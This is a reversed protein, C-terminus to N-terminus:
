KFFLSRKKMPRKQDDRSRRDRNQFDDEEDRRPIRDDFDDNMDRRPRRNNYEDDDQVSRVRERTRDGTGVKKRDQIDEQVRSVTSSLTDYTAAAGKFIKDRIRHKRDLIMLKDIVKGVVVTVKRTVNLEANIDAAEGLLAVVRMGMTRVLDGRPNKGIAFIAFMAAGGTSGMWTPILPMNGGCFSGILIVCLLAKIMEFEPDIDSRPAYKWPNEEEGDEVPPFPVRQRIRCLARVHKGTRYRRRVIRTRKWLYIFALGLSRSMEGCDNRLFSMLMFLLGTMTAFFQGQSLLSQGVFGGLSAGVISSALALQIRGYRAMADSRANVYDSANVKRRKKREGDDFEMGTQPLDDDENTILEEVKNKDQSIELSPFKYDIPNYSKKESEASESSAQQSQIKDNNRQEFDPRNSRSWSSQGRSHTYYRDHEQQPNYTGNLKDKSRPEFRRSSTTENNDFTNYRRDDYRPPPPPPPPPRSGLSYRISSSLVISAIPIKKM